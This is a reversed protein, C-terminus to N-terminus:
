RLGSSVDDQLCSANTFGPPDPANTPSPPTNIEHKHTFILPTLLHLTTSVEPRSKREKSMRHSLRLAIKLKFNLVDDVGSEM